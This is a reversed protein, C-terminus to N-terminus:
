KEKLLKGSIFFDETEITVFYMGNSSNEGSNTKGNWKFIQEGPNLNNETLTKITRGTVDTIVISVSSAQKLEFRIETETTFPNPQVSINETSKSKENISLTSPWDLIKIGAWTSFFPFFATVNALYIKKNYVDIGWTGQQTAALGYGNCSDPLTPNAVNIVRMQSGGASLFVANDSPVYVLQNMHGPSNLWTNSPNQCNYPNWWSLENINNVNSIDVIEMGCYDVALYAINGNLAINNYAQQKSLM